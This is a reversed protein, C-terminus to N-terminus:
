KGNVNGEKNHELIRNLGVLLVEWKAFIANKIRKDFYKAEGGVFIIDIEDFKKRIKAIHGELEYLVGELVGRQIAEKTSRAVGESELIEGDPEYYPLQSTFERLARFRMTVGPSIVGGEFGGQRTVLDITIASGMDIVLQQEKDSVIQAGVAAALRDRGLTAPTGYSNAIPVSSEADFIMLHNISGRLAAIDIQDLERTSSLIADRIGYKDRWRCVTDLELSDSVTHTLVRDCEVVAMKISSNGIDIVLNRRM